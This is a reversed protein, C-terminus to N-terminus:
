IILISIVNQILKTRQLSIYATSIYVVKKLYFNRRVLQQLQTEYFAAGATLCDLKIDAWRPQSINFPSPKFYQTNCKRNYTQVYWLWLFKRCIRSICNNNNNNNDFHRWKDNECRIAFFYNMNTHFNKYESEYNVASQEWICTHLYWYVLFLGSLPKAGTPVKMRSTSYWPKTIWDM